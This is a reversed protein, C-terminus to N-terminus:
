FTWDLKVVVSRAWDNFPQWSMITVVKLPGGVFALATLSTHPEWKGYDDWPGASAGVDAGVVVPFASVLERGVQPILVPKGNGHLDFSAILNPSFGFVPYAARVEIVDQTVFENHFEGIGASVQAGAPAAILLAALAATRPRLLWSWISGGFVKAVFQGLTILPLFGGFAILPFLVSDVGASLTNSANVRQYWPRDRLVHYAFADVSESVAFALSSALAISAADANLLWSLLGGSAILAGMKWRLDTGSWRDHLRDRATLNLGIFVFATVVSISPGFATVILNAAVIAALYAAITM